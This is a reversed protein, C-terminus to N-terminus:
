VVSAVRMNEVIKSWGDKTESNLKELWDDESLLEPSHGQLLINADFDRLLRISHRGASRSLAVYIDCLNLSGGLPTAIDVIVPVITQEAVRESNPMSGTRKVAEMTQQRPEILIVGEDLGDLKWIRTRELKVLIYLLLRHLRIIDQEPSIPPDDPHLVRDLITGRAGNALDLDTEINQFVTVRAGVAISLTELLDQKTNQKQGSSTRHSSRLAM